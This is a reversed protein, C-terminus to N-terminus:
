IPKTAEVILDRSSRTELNRLEPTPGQNWQCRIIDQFGVATLKRRMENEDYHYRHGHDQSNTILSLYKIDGRSEGLTAYNLYNVGNTFNVKDPQTEKDWHLYAEVFQRLDPCSFRLKGGPILVRFCEQMLNFGDVEDLHEIFHESYIFSISQNSYPLPQRLDCKVTGHGSIDLNDWGVITQSGSGLNLKVM